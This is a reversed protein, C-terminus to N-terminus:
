FGDMRMKKWVVTCDAMSLQCAAPQKDRTLSLTLVETHGLYCQNGVHFDGFTIVEAHGLTLIPARGLLGWLQFTKDCSHQVKRNRHLFLTRISKCLYRQKKFRRLEELPLQREWSPINWISTTTSINEFIRKWLSIYHLKSFNKSVNFNLIIYLQMHQTPTKPPHLHTHVCPHTHTCILTFFWGRHDRRKVWQSLM